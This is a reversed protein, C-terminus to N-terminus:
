FGMSAKFLKWAEIAEDLERIVEKMEADTLHRDALAEKSKRVVDEMEDVVKVAQLLRNKEALKGLFPLVYELVSLVKQVIQM